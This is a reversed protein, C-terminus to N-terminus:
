MLLQFKGFYILKEILAFIIARQFNILGHVNSDTSLLEEVTKPHRVFHRDELDVTRTILDKKFEECTFYIGFIYINNVDFCFKADGCLQDRLEDFTCTPGFSEWDVFEALIKQGDGVLGDM